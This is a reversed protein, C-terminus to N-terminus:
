KDCLLPANESVSVTVRQKKMSASIFNNGSRCCLPATKGQDAKKACGAYQKILADRAAWFFEVADEPTDWASEWVVAIDKTKIEEYVRWADGNWGEAAKKGESKGTFKGILFSIGYEGAVDEATKRYNKFAKMADFHMTEFPEHSFYKEKHLVHESSQPPYKYAANVTDWGGQLFLNQVLLFGHVYPFALMETFYDPTGGGPLFSSFSSALSDFDSSGMFSSYFSQMDKTFEQPLGLTTLVSLINVFLADGEILGSLALQADGTKTKRTLAELPFYQDVLAHDLEHLLVFDKVDFNLGPIDGGSINKLADQTEQAPETLIFLTRKKEDYYGLAQSMYLSILKEKVDVNEPIFGLKKMGTELSKIENKPMLEDIRRVLFEKFEGSSQAKKKVPSKFTLGRLKQVQKM